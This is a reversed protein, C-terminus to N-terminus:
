ISGASGESLRQGSSSRSECSHSQKSNPSLMDYIESGDMLESGSQTLAASTLGCGPRPACLGVGVDGIDVLLFCSLDINM